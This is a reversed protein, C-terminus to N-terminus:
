RGKIQKAPDFELNRSGPQPNLYSTISAFQNRGTTIRFKIRAYRDGRVKLFYEKTVDGRWRQADQPMNIEDFAEYGAEPAEFAFEEQRATLGGEPVSIRCRWDYPQHSNPDFGVNNAWCEIKVDGQGLGVSRGTSLDVEVPTGDKSVKVDRDESILPESQGKKRLVFIAPNDKSPPSNGSPMGYGFGGYSKNPLRDYGPKSVEVYLGAGKIGKISFLGQTDSVGEYKSSKGFYQDAASYYVKASQVPEGTQDIVKGYFEIPASFVTLIKGLKQKDAQTLNAGPIDPIATPSIELKPAAASASATPEPSANVKEMALGPKTKLERHIWTYAICLTALAVVCIALFYKVRM